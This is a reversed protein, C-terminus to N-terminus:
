EDDNDEEDEENVMEDGSVPQVTVERSVSRERIDVIRGGFLELADRVVPTQPLPLRSENTPLTDTTALEGLTGAKPTDIIRVAMARGVVTAAMQQLIRQTEGEQLLERAMRNHGHFHIELASETLRMACHQELIWGLARTSASEIIKQVAEDPSSVPTPESTLPPATGTFPTEAEAVV